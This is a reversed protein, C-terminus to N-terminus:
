RRGRRRRRGKRKRPPVVKRVAEVILKRVIARSTAALVARAFDRFADRNDASVNQLADDYDQLADDYDARLRARENRTLKRVNM